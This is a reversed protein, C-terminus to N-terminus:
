FPLDDEDNAADSSPTQPPKPPNPAESQHSTPSKSTQSYNDTLTNSDPTPADSKNSLMVMERVDIDVAQRENGDKDEYKRKKIRGEIYLQMGKRVYKEAVEALPSWLTLNHWVTSDIQDGQRNKYRESTAM